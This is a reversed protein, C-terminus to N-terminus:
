ADKKNRASGTAEDAVQEALKDRKTPKYYKRGRLGEPLCDMNEARGSEFRHAYQYGEGYGLRKMLSTAANRLHMPV